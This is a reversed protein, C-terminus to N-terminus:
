FPLDNTSIEKQVSELVGKICKERRRLAPVIASGENKQIVEEIKELKDNLAHRIEILADLDEHSEVKFDMVLHIQTWCGTKEDLKLMWISLTINEITPM